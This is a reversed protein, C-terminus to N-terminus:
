SKLGASSPARAPAPAADRSPRRESARRAKEYELLAVSYGVLRDVIHRVADRREVVEPALM